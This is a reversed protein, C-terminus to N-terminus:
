LAASTLLARAEAKYKHRPKDLIRQAAERARDMQGSCAWCLMNYHDVESAFQVFQPKELGDLHMEAEYPRGDALLSVALYLRALGNLPERQVVPLLGEAARAYEGASYHAMADLFASNGNTRFRESVLDPYPAFLDTCPDVVHERCGTGSLLVLLLAPIAKRMM